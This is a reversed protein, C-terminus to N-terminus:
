TAVLEVGVALGEKVVNSLSEAQGTPMTRSPVVLMDARQLARAVEAHPRAGRFAVHGALGLETALGESRLRAPGDGIVELSIDVRRPRLRALARLLVDLGKYPV